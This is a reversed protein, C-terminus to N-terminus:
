GSRIRLQVGIFTDSRRNDDINSINEHYSREKKETLDIQILKHEKSWRGFSNTKGCRQSSSYEDV